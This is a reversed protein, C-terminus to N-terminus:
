VQQLYTAPAWGENDNISVLWWGTDLKEKVNVVDGACFSVEGENEGFFDATAIFEEKQTKTLSNSESVGSPKLSVLPKPKMATKPHTKKDPVSPKAHQFQPGQSSSKPRPKMPIASPKNVDNNEFKSKLASTSIRAGNEFDNNETNQKTHVAPKSRASNIGESSTTAGSKRADIKAALVNKFESGKDPTLKNPIMPKLPKPKESTRPRGNETSGVEERPSTASKLKPKVPPMLPTKKVVTKSESVNSSTQDSAASQRSEFKAKLVDALNSSGRDQNQSNSSTHSDKPLVVPKSTTFPKTSGAEKEFKSKMTKSVSVNSANESETDHSVSSLKPLSIVPGTSPKQHGTNSFKSKLDTNRGKKAEKFKVPELYYPGYRIQDSLNEYLNDGDDDDGREGLEDDPPEPVEEYISDGRDTNTQFYLAFENYM